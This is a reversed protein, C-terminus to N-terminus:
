DDNDEEVWRLLSNKTVELKPHWITKTKESLKQGVLKQFDEYDDENRFHVYITKYAKKHDQKYEPMGKWHKRWGELNEKIEEESEEMFSSLTPDLYTEDVQGVFNDYETKEEMTPAVKETM